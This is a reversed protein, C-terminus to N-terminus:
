AATKDAIKLTPTTTNTNLWYNNSMNNSIWDILDTENNVVVAYTNQSETESFACNGYITNTHDDISQSASDLTNTILAIMEIKDVIENAKEPLTGSFFSTIIKNNTNRFDCIGAIGGIYIKSKVENSSSPTINASIDSSAYSMEVSSDEMHGSIGGIFYESGFSHEEVASINGNIHCLKINTKEARGVIGGVYLNGNTNSINAFCSETVACNTIKSNKSHGVIFGISSYRIGNQTESGSISIKVDDLILGSIDAGDCKAILGIYTFESLSSVSLTFNSLTYGNGNITGSFWSNEKSAAMPLTKGNFDIDNKIIVKSSLYSDNNLFNEFEAATAIEIQAPSAPNERDKIIISVVLGVLLLVAVMGTVFYALKAFFNAKIRRSDEIRKNKEKTKKQEQKIKVNENKLIDLKSLENKVYIYDDEDALKLAKSAYHKYDDNPPLKNLNKTKARVVGMYGKYNKDDLSIALKYFEEAKKYDAKFLSTDGQKIADSFQFKTDLDKPANENVFSIDHEDLIESLLHTTGCHMCHVMKSEMDVQMNAGCNKCKLIVNAM